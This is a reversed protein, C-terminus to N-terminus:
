VGPVKGAVTGIVGLAAKDAGTLKTLGAILMVGGLIIKLGRVLLNHGSLGTLSAVWKFGGQALGTTANIANNAANLAGKTGPVYVQGGNANVWDTAAQQSTFFYVKSPWSVSEMLYKAAANTVETVHQGPSGVVVGWQPYKAGAGAIGPISAM